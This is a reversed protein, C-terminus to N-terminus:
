LEVDSPQVGFAGDRVLLLQEEVLLAHLFWPCEGCRDFPLLAAGINGYSSRSRLRVAQDRDAGTNRTGGKAVKATAAACINAEEDSNKRKRKFVV